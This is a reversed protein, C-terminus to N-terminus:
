SARPLGENLVEAVVGIYTYVDTTVVMFSNINAVWLKSLTGYLAPPIFACINFALTGTYSITDICIIMALLGVLM